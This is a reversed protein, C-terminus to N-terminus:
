DGYEASWNDVMAQRKSTTEDNGRLSGAETNPDVMLHGSQALEIVTNLVDRVVQGPDVADGPVGNSLEIAGSEIALLPRAMEIVAPALGERQFESIEADTRQANLQSTLEVIQQGQTALQTHALEIAESGPGYSLSVDEEDEDGENDIEEDEDGENFADPGFQDALAELGEDEELMRALREATEPKQLLEALPASLELTVTNGSQEPMAASRENTAKSLDVFETVSGVALDVSQVRQWPRMGKMQPDITALVHQVARPFHRGDSTDLNELIRASVGIKPNQEVVRTGEGWTRLVADVGSGDASLEVGVMEGATLLPSNNHRNDGDALQLPVQDYAGDKFARILDEGYQRDFTIKRKNGQRDTYDITRFALIQKKWLGGDALEVTATCFPTRVETTM